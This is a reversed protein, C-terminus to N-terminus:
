LSHYKHPNAQAVANLQYPRITIAAKECGRDSDNASPALPRGRKCVFASNRFWALEECDVKRSMLRQERGHGLRMGHLSPM